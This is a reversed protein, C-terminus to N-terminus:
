KSDNPYSQGQNDIPEKVAKPCNWKKATKVEVNYQTLSLFDRQPVFHEPRMNQTNHTSQFLVLRARHRVDQENTHKM